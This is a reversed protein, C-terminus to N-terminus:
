AKRADEARHDELRRFTRRVPSVWGDEPRSSFAGLDSGVKGCEHCVFGGMPHRRPSPHYCSWEPFLLTLLWVLLVALIALTVILLARIM